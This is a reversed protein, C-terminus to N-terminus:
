SYRRSSLRKALRNRRKDDNSSDRPRLDHETTSRLQHAKIRDAIAKRNAVIVAVPLQIRQVLKTKLQLLQMRRKECSECVM